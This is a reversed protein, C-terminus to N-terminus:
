EESLSSIGGLADIMEDIGHYYICINGPLPIVNWAVELTQVTGVHQGVWSVSSWRNCYCTIKSAAASNGTLITDGRGPSDFTVCETVGACNLTVDEAIHGGLSYGTVFINDYGYLQNVFENAAEM